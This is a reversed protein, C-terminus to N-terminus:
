DGRLSEIPDVNSARRAPVYSAMLGVAVMSLSTLVYTAVDVTAVEFLLSGLVKASALAVGLGIAVGLVVVRAGQAVVMRRVQGTEAGLAMRVGIERTRQAVVYSLVGYLGVAGLVLALTSAILLVLMTFSLGVMSDRALEAMTFTRYMPASPAVERVLARIDPAIFEARATKVVYAPSSIVWSRPQPGVIPFYVLPQLAQRFDNQKVDEVVGIVTFWASDTPSHLRRGVAREGPWLREAAGKSVVVKGMTSALDRPAFPEGELLAIGMTTFYDGAAYTYDVRVGAAPDSEMAETRFPATGTGENLPVNEVLGVSQVGPLARLRDMFTMAFQAYSPGDVLGNGEPAIQFTFVDKTDYGPDVGSLKSFSRILLGSGILLVLAFATQGVILGHRGWQRARTAGRGGERLRTLDPSSARIAPVLGCALAALFATGITFLAVTMDLGVDGLRPVGDPASRVFLPLGAWAIALAILAALSAVVLAEAMQLRVLQARTAGIAGRVALERQRGETRVMFLNAVNACAILLVIVVAGQLVWLPRTVRGLMQEELPRVIARHQEIVRAYRPSGGYRAPLEKSLATLERAVADPTVGRKMRAVLTSQFRGTVVDAPLIEGPIWLMTEENPFEFEPGMVGIVTRRAGSVDYARGVVTSDGGFWTTWLAHSIVVVGSEDAAVPLRGLVPTAGLTSFLANTPQSMRIREVRDGARMTSTFSNYTSIDELLKSRERYHLLFESSVGFEDPLQSGPATAAIHVLRDVHQYPLPNLLVTDVVGFMGATVGIALGLTGAAVATFGAARALARTAFRLDQAWEQLMSAMPEGNTTFAPSAHWTPTVREAIAARLLDVTTALAFWLAPAAGRARAADYDQEVQERMDAGFQEQFARPFLAVLLTLASKM